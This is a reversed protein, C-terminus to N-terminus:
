AIVFLVFKPDSFWSEKSVSVAFDLAPVNQRAILHPLVQKFFASRDDALIEM